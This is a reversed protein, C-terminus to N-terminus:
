LNNKIDNVIYPFTQELTYSRAKKYASEVMPWYKEYNNSVENILYELEAFTHWYLFDIGPTFWKEIVNWPDYMILNLSKCLAAEFARVRLQSVINLHQIHKLAGNSVWNPYTTMIYNVHSTQLFLVNICISVKSLSWLKYKEESSINVHTADDHSILNCFIYNFKKISNIMQLYVHSHIQGLYIVDYIKDKPKIDNFQLLMTESVLPPIIIYRTKHVDSFEKNFYDGTYECHIYIDDFYRLCEEYNVSFDLFSSPSVIDLYVKKKYNAYQSRSENSIAASYGHFFVIGDEGDDCYRELNYYHETVDKYGSSLDKILKM